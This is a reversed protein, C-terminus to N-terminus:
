AAKKKQAFGYKNELKKIEKITMALKVGIVILAVGAVIHAYSKLFATGFILMTAAMGMVGILRASKYAKIVEAAALKKTIMENQVNTETFVADVHPAGRLENLAEIIKENNM